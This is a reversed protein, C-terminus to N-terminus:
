CLGRSRARHVAEATSRAGLLARARALRRHATRLSLHLQRAAEAVTAGRAMLGLLQRVDEGFTQRPRRDARIELRGLRTLDDLFAAHQEAGDVLVALGYGRLAVRLADREDRPTRVAGVCVCPRPRSGHADSPPDWGIHLSWGVRALQAAAETLLTEDGEAVVLPRGEV